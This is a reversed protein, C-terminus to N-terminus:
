FFDVFWILGDSFLFLCSIIIISFTLKIRSGSSFFGVGRVAVGTPESFERKQYLKGSPLTMPSVAGLERFYVGNRDLVKNGFDRCWRLGVLMFFSSVITLRRPCLLLNKTEQSQSLATNSQWNRQQSISLVSSQRKEKSARGLRLRNKNKYKLTTSYM